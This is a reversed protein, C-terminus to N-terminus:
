EEDSDIREFRDLVAISGNNKTKDEVLFCFAGNDLDKVAIVNRGSNTFEEAEAYRINYARIM